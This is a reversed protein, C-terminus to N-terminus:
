TCEISMREPSILEMYGMKGCAYCTNSPTPSEDMNHLRDIPMYTTYICSIFLHSFCQYCNSQISQMRVLGVYMLSRELTSNSKTNQSDNSVKWTESILSFGNSHGKCMVKFVDPSVYMMGRTKCKPIAQRLLSLYTSLLGLPNMTSNSIYHAKCPVMQIM